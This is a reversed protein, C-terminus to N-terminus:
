KKTLEEKKEVVPGKGDIWDELEKVTYWGANEGRDVPNLWFKIESMSEDAWAPNLARFKKGKKNLKEEIGTSDAMKGLDYNAEDMKLMAEDVEPDVKSAVVMHLGGTALFGTAGLYLAVDKSEIATKLTTYHDKIKTSLVFGSEDWRALFPEKRGPWALKQETDKIYADMNVFGTSFGISFYEGEHTTIKPVVTSTRAMLGFDPKRGTLRDAMRELINRKAQTIGFSERIGPIGLEHEAAYDYGFNYGIFEGKSNFLEEKNFMGIKM